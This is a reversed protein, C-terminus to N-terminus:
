GAPEKANWFDREEVVLGDANFRLISVGALTEEGGNVLMTHAQWSVAAWEGDVIPEGFSCDTSEEEAFVRTLYGPDPQRFPHQVWLAGAAYLRAIPPSDHKRWGEQWVAAWRGAAERTNM